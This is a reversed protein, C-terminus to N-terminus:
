TQCIRLHTVNLDDMNCSVMDTLVVKHRNIDFNEILEKGDTVKDISEYGLSAFLRCLVKRNIPNDEALIIESGETLSFSTTEDIKSILSLYREQTHMYASMSSEEAQEVQKEQSIKLPLCVTFTSGLGVESKVHITGGLTEVLHLVTTLGLGSSPIKKDNANGRLQVFPEFIAKTQAQPIGCGFDTVKFEVNAIGNTISKLGIDLLVCTNKKSAKVANTLLNSFIQHMRSRNSEVILEKIEEEIHYEVSVEFHSAYGTVMDKLSKMCEGLAFTQMQVQKDQKDEFEVKLLALIDEILMLVVGNSSAIIDVLEMQKDNMETEKLLELSGMASMIPCRRLHHSCSLM